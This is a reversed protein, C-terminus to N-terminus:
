YPVDLLSQDTRRALLEGPERSAASAVDLQHSNVSSTGKALDFVRSTEKRLRVQEACYRTLSRRIDAWANRTSEVRNRAPLTLVAVAGMLPARFTCGTADSSPLKESYGQARRAIVGAAAQHVTRGLRVSYKVLGAVSTYAPNVLTLRVGSRSAKALVLRKYAAYALGSLMRAQRVGMSGLEKKKDAFDLDELAIGVDHQKALAFVKDLADSIIATRQGTTKGRLELEFRWFAVPNGFRDTRAVALHDANFDIGLMGLDAGISTIPADATDTAVFVRWGKEDRHFRYTLAVHGSLAALVKDHGHNFHVGDIKLFAPAGKAVLSPPMKVTLELSSSAADQSSLQAKCSQNGGTEDKSGVTFFQHDRSADWAKKWAAHGAAGVGFDTQHLHFQQNFLKRTGFCIGPVNDKLRRSVDALKHQLSVLRIKKGHHRKKLRKMKDLAFAIPPVKAKAKAALKNQGGIDMVLKSVARRAGAIKQQLDKKRAKLLEVTAALKGDLEIRMANFHRASLGHVACFTTKLENAREGKAVHAYLIRQVRGYHQAFEGLWRQQANDLTLRTQYTQQM